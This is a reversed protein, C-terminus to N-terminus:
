SAPAGPCSIGAWWARWCQARAAARSACIVSLSLSVCSFEAVCCCENHNVVDRAALGRYPDCSSGIFSIAEWKGLLSKTKLECSDTHSHTDQFLESLPQTTEGRLAPEAATAVTICCSGWASRQSQWNLVVGLCANGGGAWRSGPCVDEYHATRQRERM